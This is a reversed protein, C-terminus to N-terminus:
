LNTDPLQPETTVKATITTSRTDTQRRQPRPQYSTHNVGQGVPNLQPNGHQPVHELAYDM